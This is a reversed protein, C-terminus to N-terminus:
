FSQAKFLVIFLANQNVRLLLTRKSIFQLAQFKRLLTRVALRGYESVDVTLDSIKSFRASSVLVRRNKTFLIHKSQSM